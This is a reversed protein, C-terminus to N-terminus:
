PRTWWPTTRYAPAEEPWLLALACLLLGEVAPPPRRPALQARLVEAAGLRRLV